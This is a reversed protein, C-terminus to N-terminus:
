FQMLCACRREPPRRCTRQRSKHVPQKKRVASAKTDGTAEGAAHWLVAYADPHTYMGVRNHAGKFIHGPFLKEIFDVVHQRQLDNKEALTMGEAILEVISM